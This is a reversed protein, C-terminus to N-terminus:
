GQGLAREVLGEVVAFGDQSLAPRDRTLFVDNALKLMDVVHRYFDRLLTLGFVAAPAADDNLPTTRFRPPATGLM